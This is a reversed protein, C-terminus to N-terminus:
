GTQLSHKFIIQLIKAFEFATNKLFFNPIADPGVANKTNVPNGNQFHFSIGQNKGSKGMLLILIGQNLKIM